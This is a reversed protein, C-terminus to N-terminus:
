DEKETSLHQGTSANFLLELVQGDQTLLEIEYVLQNDENELEVEIIRGSYLKHAKDLILQLPLINGSDLLMKAKDHDSDSWSLTSYFFLVYFILSYKFLKKM